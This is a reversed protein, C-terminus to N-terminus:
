LCHYIRKTHERALPSLSNARYDEGTRSRTNGAPYFQRGHPIRVPTLSHERALPPYVALTM